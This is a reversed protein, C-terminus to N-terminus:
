GGPLGAAARRQARAAQGPSPECQEPNAVRRSREMAAARLGAQHAARAAAARQAPTVTIHDTRLDHVEGRLADGRKRATDTKATSTKTATAEGRPGLVFSAVALNSVNADVGRWDGRHFRPM